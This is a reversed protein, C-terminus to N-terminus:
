STKELLIRRLRAYRTFQAQNSILTVAGTNFKGPRERKLGLSESRESPPWAAALLHRLSDFKDDFAARPARARLEAVLAKFNEVAVLKMRAGLCSYDFNGSTVQWGVDSTRAYIELESEDSFMERSDAVEDGPRVRGRREEVEVRRVYVRGTVFLELDDWAVAESGGATTWVRLGDGSMDIRRARVPPRADVGLVEDAVVEARLGLAGLRAVILEAEDRAAARAVPLAEGHGL